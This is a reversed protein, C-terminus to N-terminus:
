YNNRTIHLIVASNGDSELGKMQKFNSTYKACKITILLYFVVLFLRYIRRLLIGFIMKFHSRFRQMYSIVAIDNIIDIKVVSYDDSLHIRLQLM